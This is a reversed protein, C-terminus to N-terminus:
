AWGRMVAAVVSTLERLVALPALNPGLFPVALVAHWGWAWSAACAALRDCLSPQAAFGRLAPLFVLIPFFHPGLSLHSV